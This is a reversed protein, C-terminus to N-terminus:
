YKGDKVTLKVDVKKSGEPAKEGSIEELVVAWTGEMQKLDKKAADDQPRAAALALLVIVGLAKCRMRLVELLYTTTPLRLPRLSSPLLPVRDQLARYRQRYPSQADPQFARGVKM